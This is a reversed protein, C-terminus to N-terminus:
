NGLVDIIDINDYVKLNKNSSFIERNKESIKVIIKNFEGKKYNLTKYDDKYNVYTAKKGYLNFEIHNYDNQIRNFYKFTPIISNYKIFILTEDLNVDFMYTKEGKYVEKTFFNVWKGKPLYVTRSTKGQDVIPCIMMNDGVLYQDNINYTKEDNQYNLLLPKLVPQGTLYHEYFCDYLYPLFKYRLDVFKKYIKATEEDFSYPEQSKTGLASHNRLLPSMFGAEIWRILLEKTCNASFGGIDTGCFAFGSMGLNLLQPISLQLHAYISHNDGTWVSSYRNTGAYCARTIVFPRENKRSLGEYTAESMLHGYVNHIEKHLYKENNESVFEVDDPLPGKFSAPENMDNWIGVIGTEKLEECHNGWWKRVNKDVFNPFVSEGPWVENVYIEGNHTAFFKNEVGEDYVKYGPDKKVGSDIITVIGVGTEDNLKKIWNKFDPFKNEDITFDRYGNMYDIDLHVVDLPIDYRNYGEIVREVYDKDYYSWRSQHNGLVKLAPVDHRGLVKTVRTVCDRIDKKFYFRVDIEGDISGFYYDDLDRGFDFISKFTNDLFVAFCANKRLNYFLNISKYLAPMNELQVSPDDTNYNYFQYYKKNLFGTKDGLGYFNDEKNLKSRFIFKYDSNSFSKHGEKEKLSLDEVEFKSNFEIAGEYIIENLYTIKINFGNDFELCLKSTKIQLADNEKSIEYKKYAKEEKLVAFSKHEKSFIRFSESDYFKIFLTEFTDSLEILGNNKVNYTIM